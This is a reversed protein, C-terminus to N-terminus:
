ASPERLLRRRIREKGVHLASGIEPNSAGNEAAIRILRQSWSDLTAKAQHVNRLLQLAQERRVEPTDEDEVNGEVVSLWSWLLARVQRAQMTAVDAGQPAGDFDTAAHRVEAARADMAALLRRNNEAILTYGGAEALRLNEELAARRSEENM